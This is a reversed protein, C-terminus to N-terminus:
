SLYNKITGLAVSTDVTNLADFVLLITYVPQVCRALIARWVIALPAVFSWLFMIPWFVLPTKRVMIWSFSFLNPSKNYLMDSCLCRCSLSSIEVLFAVSM